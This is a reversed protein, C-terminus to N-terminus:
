SPRQLVPLVGPPALGWGCLGGSRGGSGVVRLVPAGLVYPAVIDEGDRKNGKFAKQWATM